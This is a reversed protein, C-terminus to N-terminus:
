VFNYFYAEKWAQKQSIAPDPNRTKEGDVTKFAHEDYIDGVVSIILSLVSAGVSWAGILVLQSALYDAFLGVIMIIISVSLIRYNKFFEVCFNKFMIVCLMLVILGFFGFKSGEASFEKYKWLYLASMPLIYALLTYIKYVKAMGGNTLKM